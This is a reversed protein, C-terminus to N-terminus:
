YGFPIPHNRFRDFLPAPVPDPPNQWASLPHACNRSNTFYEQVDRGQLPASHGREAAGAHPVTTPGNHKGRLTPSRADRGRRHLGFAMARLNVINGLFDHSAPVHHVAKPPPARTTLTHAEFDHEPQRQLQPRDRAGARWLHIPGAALWTVMVANGADLAINDLM